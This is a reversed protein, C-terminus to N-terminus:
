QRDLSHTRVMATQGGIVFFFFCWLTWESEGEGMSFAQRCAHGVFCKRQGRGHNDCVVRGDELGEGGHRQGVRDLCREQATCGRADGDVTRVARQVRYVATDVVPERGAQAAPADIEDSILVGAPSTPSPPEQRQVLLGSQRAELLSDLLMQTESLTQTERVRDRGVEFQDFQHTEGNGM